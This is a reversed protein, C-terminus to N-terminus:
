PVSGCFVSPHGHFLSSPYMQQRQRQAQRQQNRRQGVARAAPNRVSLGAAQGRRGRGRVGFRRERATFAAYAGIQVAQAAQIQGSIVARHAGVVRRLDDMHVFVFHKIKGALRDVVEAARQHPQVKRVEAFRRDGVPHIAGARHRRIRYIVYGGDVARLQHAGVHAVGDDFRRGRGRRVHGREGQQGFPQDGLKFPFRARKQVVLAGAAEGGACVLNGRVRRIGVADVQAQAVLAHQAHLRQVRSLHLKDVKADLVEGVQVARDVVDAGHGALAPELGKVGRLHGPAHDGRRRPVHRLEGGARLRQEQQVLARALHEAKRLVAQLREVAAVQLAQSRLAVRKGTQAQLREAAQDVKVAYKRGLVQLGFASGALRRGGEGKAVRGHFGLVRAIFRPQDCRPRHHALIRRYVHELGLLGVARKRAAATALGHAFQLRAQDLQAVEVVVGVANEARVRLVGHAKQLGVQGPAAKRDVAHRRRLQLVHEEVLVQGGVIGVLRKRAAIGAQADGNQLIAQAFQAEQGVARVANVALARLLGHGDELLFVAKGGCARGRAFRQLPEVGGARAGALAIDVHFLSVRALAHTLEVLAELGQVVILARGAAGKVIGGHGGNAAELGLDAQRLGAHGRRRQLAAKKGVARRFVAAVNGQLAAIGAIAHGVQLAAQAIQAIILGIDGSVEARHGLGRHLQELIGRPQVDGAHCRHFRLPQQEGRIRGHVNRGRGRRNGGSRGRGRRALHANGRDANRGNGGNGAANVVEIQRDAADVEGPAGVAIHRGIIHANGVAGPVRQKGLLHGIGGAIKGGCRQRPIREVGNGYARNRFVAGHVIRAPRM